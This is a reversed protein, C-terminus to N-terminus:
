KCNQVWTRSKEKWNSEYYAEIRHVFIETILEFILFRNQKKQSLLFALFSLDTCNSCSRVEEMGTLKGSDERM